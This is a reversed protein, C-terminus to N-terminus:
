SVAVTVPYLRKGDPEHLQQCCVSLCGTHIQPRSVMPIGTRRRSHPLGPVCASALVPGAFLPQVSAFASRVWLSLHAEIGLTHFGAAVPAYTSHFTHGFASLFIGDPWVFATYSFAANESRNLAVNKHQFFRRKQHRLAPTETAFRPSVYRLSANNLKVCFVPM